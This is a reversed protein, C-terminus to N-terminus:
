PREAIRRSGRTGVERFERTREEINKDLEAIMGGLSAQSAPAARGLSVTGLAALLKEDEADLRVQNAARVEAPVQFFGQGDQEHEYMEDERELKQQLKARKETRQKAKDLKLQSRRDLRQTKHTDLRTPAKKHKDAGM